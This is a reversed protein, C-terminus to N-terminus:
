GDLDAFTIPAGLTPDEPRIRDLRQRLFTRGDHDHLALVNRLSPHEVTTPRVGRAIGNPAATPLWRMTVTSDAWEVVEAVLGEGSLGTVDDSRYMYYVRM